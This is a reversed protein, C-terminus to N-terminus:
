CCWCIWCSGCNVKVGGGAVAFGAVPVAALRDVVAFPVALVVPASVGGDAFACNLRFVLPVFTLAALTL